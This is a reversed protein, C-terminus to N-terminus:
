PKGALRAPHRRRGAFGIYSLETTQRGAADARRFRAPRTLGLVTIWTASM